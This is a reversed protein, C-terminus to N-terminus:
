RHRSLKTVPKKAGKKKQIEKKKKNAKPDKKAKTKKAIISKKHPKEPAVEKVLPITEPYFEKQFKEARAMVYNGYRAVFAGGGFCTKGSFYMCASDRENPDDGRTGKLLVILEKLHVAAAMFADEPNWPDAVDKDLYMATIACVRIWTSPLIQAPGMAGGWGIRMPCSVPTNYPNRKLQKMIWLFPEVDRDPKMIRETVSDDIKNTGSGALINDQDKGLLCTGYNKGLSSERELIAILFWPNVGTKKSATEAYRRVDDIPIGLPPPTEELVSEESLFSSDSQSGPTSSNCGVFLTLLAVLFVALVRRSQSLLM